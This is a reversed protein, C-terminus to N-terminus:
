ETMFFWRDYPDPYEDFAKLHVMDEVPHVDKIYYPGAGVWFHEREEYFEQLNNYREEAEEESIYEGLVGEYPIYNDEAAEEFHEELYDLSEGSTYSMWEVGLEDSKSESFVVDGAADAKIGPVLMHWFISWDYTGHDPWWDTVNWEADLYWDDSYHEIVLPDESVIRMGRFNNLWAEFEGQYATDFIESAEKGREFQMIMSMIFDGMSLTSGDHLPHDFIDDEYTVVSKRLATVEEEEFREDVTIWEQAEADWDAWADGPVEIEDEEFNLEVWDRDREVPLDEDVYVEAEEVRLPWDLGDDPDRLQGWDGIARNTVFNDYVFASGEVPNFPDAYVNPMAVNLTGGVQPEGDEDLKHATYPWAPDVIGGAEDAAVEVDTRYPNAGAVDCVFIRPSFENAQWLMTEFLERREEMTTFEGHGLRRSAEDLEPFEELPEDLTDFIPWPMVRHTYMQEFTRGQDRPITTSVWGGTYLHFEGESPHAGTYIPSADDGTREDRVIEFGLDEFLDAVYHGAEPYPDLDSRILFTLEVPDGEYHWTGDVKEAGLDEMEETIVEEARDTDQAYYDEIEGVLDPYREEADPFASSLMTYRPLGMGGLYEDVIYDRDILWNVAERIEASYFPNFRGDEFTPGWHNLALESYSGYNLEYQIEEDDLIQEYLDPDEIGHAYIDLEGESLREVAAGESEERELIVEDVLPLTQDELAVEDEPDDEAPCGTFLLAPIVMLALLFLLSKRSM